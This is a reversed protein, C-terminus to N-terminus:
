ARLEVEDFALLVPIHSAVIMSNFWDSLCPNTAPPAIHVIHRYRSLVPVLLAPEGQRSGPGMSVVVALEDLIIANDEVFVSDPYPDEPPLTEVEVGMQKLARCYGEHQRAARQFDIGERQVYSVECNVLSKAPQRTLATAMYDRLFFAM